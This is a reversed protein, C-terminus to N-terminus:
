LAMHNDTKWFSMREFLPHGRRAVRLDFCMSVDAIVATDELIRYHDLM